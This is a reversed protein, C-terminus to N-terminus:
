VESLAYGVPNPENLGIVGFFRIDSILQKECLVESLSKGFCSVRARLRNIKHKTM